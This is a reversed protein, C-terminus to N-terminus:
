PRLTISAEIHRMAHLVAVDAHQPGVIQLGVPLGLADHGVPVTGAPSRTLNFPYTARVFAEGRSGVRPPSLALTPTLLLDFAEFAEVLALNLRHCEDEADVLQKTTVSDAYEVFFRVDPDMLALDTQALDTQALHRDGVTRGIYSAVLTFWPGMPDAAFVTPCDVIEIGDAALREVAEVCVREIVPDVEAYGLTPSWGIRKPMEQRAVAVSWPLAPTPLSRLDTPEAGVIVDLVALLEDVTRTLVGRTTLNGWDVPLPGGDPIRGLSPKFGPIGCAAAPIRISGGGDSATGLPVMGTAVAVASGGSSGGCTRERDFPNLTVGFLPNDTVGKAALEPTNTKGVVVCGAARLRAVLISDRQAVAPEPWLKSGYTTPYGITDETDKVALPVGALPGSEQGASTRRDIDAAEALAREADIAVFANFLPNIESIAALSETVIATATQEGSRVQAAITLLSPGTM